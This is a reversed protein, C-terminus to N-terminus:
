YFWNSRSGLKPVPTCFYSTFRGFKLSNIGPEVTQRRNYITIHKKTKKKNGTRNKDVILIRRLYLVVEPLASLNSGHTHSPNHLLISM